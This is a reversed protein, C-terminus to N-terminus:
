AHKLWNAAIISADKINIIGDDNVDLNAMPPFFIVSWNWYAGIQTADKINVIGDGNIDGLITIKVTAFTRTNDFIDEENKM